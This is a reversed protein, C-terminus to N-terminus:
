RNLNFSVEAKSYNEDFYSQPVSNLIRPLARQVTSNPLFNRGSINFLGRRIEKLKDGRDNIILWGLRMGPMIFRKTVGSCVIVPVNKSLTAFSHFDVGPFTFFEYVEDSIIPLKHKEAIDIIELIHEKSFVQGCPNGPSNVVIAKTRENILSEMHKLDVNWDKEPDLNYYQPIIGAGVFWLGYMFGPRPILINDGPNALSLFCMELAMSVGSTLIVDDSKIDGLHSSYKAVANRVPEAGPCDDYSFTEEILSEHLAKYCEPHPKFVGHVTPDGAQLIIRSKSQLRKESWKPNEWIARLPNVTKEGFYSLKVDWKKDSM